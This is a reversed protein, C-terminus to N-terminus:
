QFFRMQVKYRGQKMLHQKRIITNIKTKKKAFMKYFKFSFFLLSFIISLLSLLMGIFVVIISVQVFYLYFILFLDSVVIDLSYLYLFDYSTFQKSSFFPLAYTLSFFLGIWYLKHWGSFYFRGSFDWKGSLFNLLFVLVVVLESLLMLLILGDFSAWFGWLSLCILFLVFFLLKQRFRNTVIIFWFSTGVLLIIAFEVYDVYIYEILISIFVVYNSLLNLVGNLCFDVSWSDM